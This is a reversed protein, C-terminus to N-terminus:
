VVLLSGNNSKLVITQNPSDANVNKNLHIVILILSIAFFSFAINRATRDKNKVDFDPLTSRAIKFTKDVIIFFSISMVLVATYITFDTFIIGFSGLISALSGIINIGTLVYKM